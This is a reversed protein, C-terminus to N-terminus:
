DRLMKEAPIASANLKQKLCQYGSDHPWREDLYSNSNSRRESKNSTRFDACIELDQGKGPKFDFAKGTEPDRLNEDLLYTAHGKLEALDKPLRKESALFSESAGWIQEFNNLIQQDMKKARAQKPSDTLFFGGALALVALAALASALIATPQFRREPSSGKLDFYYYSFVLAAIMIIVLTKLAFKTTLDGDLYANLTAILRVLTVVSSVFIIFYSLWRRVISDAALDGKALFANISRLTWFYLPAAIVLASIAFNLSSPEYSFFKELPDKFYFDIATFGVLGISIATFGLGFLSLLYYFAAKALNNQM